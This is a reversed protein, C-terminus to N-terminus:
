VSKTWEAVFNGVGQVAHTRRVSSPPGSRLAVLKGRHNGQSVRRPPRHRPRRYEPRDPVQENRGGPRRHHVAQSLPHCSSPSSSSPLPPVSFRVRCTLGKPGRKNRATTRRQIPTTFRQDRWLSCLLTPILVSFSHTSRALTLLRNLNRTM